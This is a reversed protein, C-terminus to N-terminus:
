GTNKSQREPERYIRLYTEENILKWEKITYLMHWYNPLDPKRIKSFSITYLIWKMSFKSKLFGLVSELFKSEKLWLTRVIVGSESESEDIEELRFLIFTSCGALWALIYEGVIARWDETFAIEFVHCSTKSKWIVDPKYEIHKRKLRIDLCESDGSFSKYGAKSGIDILMKKLKEHLRKERM